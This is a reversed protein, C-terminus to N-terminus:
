DRAALEAFFNEVQDWVESGGTMGTWHTRVVAVLRYCEDLPVLWYERAGRSRNVLLAQVDDELDALAPDTAAIREWVEPDVTSRMTGLPNPYGVSVQGDAHRVFFALDVPVGVAAWLLDDIGDGGLRRVALPLLRYHTGGASQRDFLLSCAQCACSIAGASVDLLHRHGPAVPEACLDCRERGEEAPAPATPAARALRRLRSGPATAAPVTNM